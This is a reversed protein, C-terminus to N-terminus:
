EPLLGDEEMEVISHAMKVIAKLAEIEDASVDDLDQDRMREVCDRLDIRTNRFMCYSMNAM